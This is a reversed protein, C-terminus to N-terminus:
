GNSIYKLFNFKYYFSNFTTVLVVYSTYFVYVLLVLILM